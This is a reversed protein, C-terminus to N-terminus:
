LLIRPLAILAGAALSTSSPMSPLATRQNRVSDFGGSVDKRRQQEIEAQAEGTARRISVMGVAVPPRFRERGEDGDGEEESRCADNGVFADDVDNGRM